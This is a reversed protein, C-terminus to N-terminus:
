VLIFLRFDVCIVGSPLVTTFLAHAFFTKKGGFDYDRGIRQKEGALVGPTDM